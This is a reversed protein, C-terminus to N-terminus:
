QKNEKMKKQKRYKYIAVVFLSMTLIGLIIITATKGFWKDFLYLQTYYWDSKAIRDPDAGKALYEAYNSLAHIYIELAICGTLLFGYWSNDNWKFKRIKKWINNLRKSM